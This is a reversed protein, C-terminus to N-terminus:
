GAPSDPAASSSPVAESPSSTGDVVLLPVLRDMTPVDTTLLVNDGIQTALVRSRTGDATVDLSWVTRGGAAVSGPSTEAGYAVLRERMADVFREALDTVGAGAIRLLGGALAGPADGYRFSVVCVDTRVRGLSALLPDLLEDPDIAAVGSTVTAQLSRDDISAPLLAAASTCDAPAPSAVPTTTAGSAPPAVPIPSQAGVATSVAVLALVVGPLGLWLRGIVPWSRGTVPAHGDDV